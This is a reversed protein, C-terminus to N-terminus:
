GWFEILCNLVADKRTSGYQKEGEWGKLQNHGLIYTKTEGTDADELKFVHPECRVAVWKWSKKLPRYTKEVFCMGGNALRAVRLGQHDPGFVIKPEKTM